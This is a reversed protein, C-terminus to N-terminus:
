AHIVPLKFLDHRVVAGLFTISACYSAHSSACIRQM